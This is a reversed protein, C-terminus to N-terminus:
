DLPANRKSTWSVLQFFESHKKPLGNFHAAPPYHVGMVRVEM